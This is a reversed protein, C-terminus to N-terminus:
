QRAYRGPTAGLVKQFARTMHSQDAFGADIASAALTEGSRLSERAAMVRLLNRYAVPSLGVQRTFSRLLHCASLGAVEALMSLSPNLRFQDHMYDLARAVKANYAVATRAQSIGCHHALGTALRVFASQQELADASSRLAAHAGAVLRYLETSSSSSAPFSGLNSPVGDATTLADQLLAEPIYFVSYRLREAGISANAHMEGPNLFLTDGPRLLRDRGGITLRESGGSIAGVVFEPHAHIPFRRDAYSASVLELGPVHRPRTFDTRDPTPSGRRKM